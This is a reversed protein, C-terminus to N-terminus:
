EKETTSNILIGTVVSLLHETAIWQGNLSIDEIELERYADDEYNQYKNMADQIRESDQDISMLHLKIYNVAALASEELTRIKTDM